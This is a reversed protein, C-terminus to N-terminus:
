RSSRRGDAAGGAPHGACDSGKFVPTDGSGKGPRNGKRQATGRPGPGNGKRQRSGKGSRRKAPKKATARDGTKGGAGKGTKRCWCCIKNFIENKREVCKM